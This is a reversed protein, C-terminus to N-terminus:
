EDDWPKNGWRERDDDSPFGCETAPGASTAWSSTTSEAYCNSSESPTVPSPSRSTGSTATSKAPQKWNARLEHNFILPYESTPEELQMAAAASQQSM